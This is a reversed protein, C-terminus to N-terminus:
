NVFYDRFGYEMKGEKGLWRIGGSRVPFGLTIAPPFWGGRASGDAVRRGRREGERRKKKARQGVGVLCGRERESWGGFLGRAPLCWGRPWHDRKSRRGKSERETGGGSCTAPFWVWRCRGRGETRRAPARDRKM